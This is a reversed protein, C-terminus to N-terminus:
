QVTVAIEQSARGTGLLNSGRVRVYYTGPPVDGFSARPDGGAVSISLDRRGPAVGVEVVFDSAAGINTWNLAVHRGAIEARLQRPAGPATLLEMRRDLTPLVTRDHNMAYSDARHSSLWSMSGWSSQTFSHLYITDTDPSAVVDLWSNVGRFPAFVLLQLDAAFASAGEEHTVFVRDHVEDFTLRPPESFFGMETAARQMAGSRVDVAVLLSGFCSVGSPRSCELLYTRDGDPTVMWREGFRNDLQHLMPLTALLVADGASAKYIDYQGDSRWYACLLLDASTAHRCAALDETQRSFVRVQASSVVDVAWVGDDRSVFVRPRARDYAVIRGSPLPLTWGSVLDVVESATVAYRHGGM